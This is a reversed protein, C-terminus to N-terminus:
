LLSIKNIVALEKKKIKNRNICSFDNLRNGLAIRFIDKCIKKDKNLYCLRRVLSICNEYLVKTIQIDKTTEKIMDNGVRYNECEIFIHDSSQEVNCIPCNPSNILKMEYLKKNPLLASHLHLYAIEREKPHIITKIKAFFYPTSLDNKDTSDSLRHRLAKTTVKDSTIFHNASIPFYDRLSLGYSLERRDSLVKFLPSCAVMINNVVLRDNDNSPYKFENILHGVCQLRLRKCLVKAQNIIIPNTTLKKIMPLLDESALLNYYIKSLRSNDNSKLVETMVIDGLSEMSWFAKILFKNPLEKVTQVFCDAKFGIIDIQLIKIFHLCTESTSRILQGLILAKNMSEIDPANIGGNKYDAKLKVRAIREFARTKDAKKRWLFNFCIKEICKIESDKFYSNQMAYILQSLGFTKLIINRGFLSLSRKSWSALVGELKGIKDLVNYKYETSSDLSFTKGCITVKDSYDVNVDGNPSSLCIKETGCKEHLKMIETKDVNLYLGSVESFKNYRDIVENISSLNPILVAIDDAYALVKPIRFNHINLNPINSDREIKTIVTEMCLIFLVCSLADGQKVSRLIPFENTVHGNVLVRSHINKYLLKVIDRFETCFGFKTLVKDIYIHDVSDFAKKADLSVLYGEIKHKACIDKIIDIMRLNDHVIRGPIYATQLPNLIDNLMTSCRKTIAKTIVKIDCNSLTIPRLNGIHRKDKGKKGLLCIVSERHSPSLTGTKIAFNWSNILLECYFSWCVKLLKYGIGDPGSATDGCGKLVKTLEDKTLLSKLVENNNGSLQKVEISDLFSKPDKNTHNCYLTSYFDYVASIKSQTDFVENNNVMFSKFYSSNHFSKNLNLFYKNSKEGLELWKIRSKAALLKTKDNLVKELENEIRFLDNDIDNVSLYNTLMHCPNDLIQKKIDLLKNKEAILSDHKDETRRNFKLSYESAKSRIMVKAYELKMHPDWEPNTNSLTIFLESEFLSRMDINDLFALNPKFMGRGKDLEFSLSIQIAAHDSKDIAFTSRFIPSTDAMHQPIFIYDLTSFKSGRNWTFIDPNNACKLNMLKMESQILNSLKKEYSSQARLGPSDQLVLNFDGTIFINDVKFRSGINNVKAFFSTYFEANKGSNPSYISVFMDVQDNYQGVVITLRGDASGSTFLINDFLNNSFVTIVGRARGLSPSIVIGERWLANVLSEENKTVYTEQLSYIFRDTSKTKLKFLWTMIRKLKKYKKCGSVNYSGILLKGKPGPNSEIDGHLALLSANAMGM